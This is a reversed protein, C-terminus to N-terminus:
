MVICKADKENIGKKSILKEYEELEKLYSLPPWQHEEIYKLNEGDLLKFEERKKM